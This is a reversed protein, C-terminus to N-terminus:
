DSRKKLTAAPIVTNSEVRTGPLLIVSAGIWCNEGISVGRRKEGLLYRPLPPSSTRHNSTYVQSYPGFMTFNGVKLGGNGQLVCGVGIHVCNGISVSGEQANIYANKELTVSDGLEISLNEGANAVLTVGDHIVARRGIKMRKDDIIINIRGYVRIQQKVGYFGFYRFSRLIPIFNRLFLGAARTIKNKAEIWAVPSILQIPKLIKYAVSSNGFNEYVFKSRKYRVLLHWRALKSNIKIQYLKYFTQLDIFLNPNFALKNKSQSISKESIRYLVLPKEIWGIRGVLPIMRMWLPWDDLHKFRTDIGGAADFIRRTYFASPAPLFNDMLVVDHLMLPNDLLSIKLPNKLYNFTAEICDRKGRFLTMQSFILDLNETLSEKVFKTVADQCLIDDCAIPKIWYGTAHSIGKKVNRCIGENAESTLLTARLFRKGNETLWSRVQEVTGDNSGDDSVILEIKEYDQNYISDLTELILNEQNFSVAIVSVVDCLENDIQKNEM